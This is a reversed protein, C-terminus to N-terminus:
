NKADILYADIEPNAHHVRQVTFAEWNHDSWVEVPDPAPGATTAAPLVEVVYDNYEGETIRVGNEAELEDIANRTAQTM